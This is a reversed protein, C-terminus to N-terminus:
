FYHVELASTAALGTVLLDDTTSKINQHGDVDRTTILSEARRGGGFVVIFFASSTTCYV